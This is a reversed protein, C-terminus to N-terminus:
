AANRYEPSTEFPVTIGLRLGGRAFEAEFEGDLERITRRILTTGFGQRTPEQVPPGEVELWKVHLADGSVHWSVDVRGTANSLAGHKAANTALEHVVMSLSLALRTPVFLPPGGVTVRGEFPQLESGVVDCIAAGQWETATLLNHTNSLSLLRSEFEQYEASSSTFTRRALSQVTTLTNKVRHNLEQLLLQQQSAKQRLHQTADRMVATVENVEQSLTSALDPITGFKLGRAEEKLSSIARVLRRGFWVALLLTLSAVALAATGGILLTDRRAKYYVGSRAAASVIWGTSIMRYFAGRLDGSDNRIGRWNAGAGRSVNDTASIEQATLVEGVRKDHNESRAILRGRRDSLQLTWDRALENDKLIRALYESPIILQISYIPKGAENLVPQALNTVWRRNTPGFILDSVYPKSQGFVSDDMERNHFAPLPAGLPSLSNLVLQGDPNRVVIWGDGGALPISTVREYFRRLDGARLSTSTALTDLTARFSSLESDLDAAADRVLRVAEDDFRRAQQEVYLWGIVLSFLLIPATLASAFVALHWGISRPKQFASPWYSL